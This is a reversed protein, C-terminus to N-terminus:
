GENSHKSVVHLVNNLVSTFLEISEDVLDKGFKLISFTWIDLYKLFVISYNTANM